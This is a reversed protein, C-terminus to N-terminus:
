EEPKNDDPFKAFFEKAKELDNGFDFVISVQCMFPTLAVGAKKGRILNYITKGVKKIVKVEVTSILSAGQEILEGMPQNDDNKKAM